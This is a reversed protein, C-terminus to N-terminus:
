TGPRHYPKWQLIGASCIRSATVLLYSALCIILNVKMGWSLMEPIWLCTQWTLYVCSGCHITKGIGTSELNIYMPMRYNYKTFSLTYNLHGNLSAVILFFCQVHHIGFPDEQALIFLVFFATPAPTHSSCWISWVELHLLCLLLDFLLSFPSLPASLLQLKSFFNITASIPVCLEFCCDHEAPRTGVQYTDDAGNKLPM